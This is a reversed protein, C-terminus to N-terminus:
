VNFINTLQGELLKSNKLLSNNQPVKINKSIHIAINKYFVRASKLFVTLKRM